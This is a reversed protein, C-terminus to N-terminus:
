PMSGTRPPGKVCDYTSGTREYRRSEWNFIVSARCSALHNIQMERASLQGSVRSNGGFYFSDTVELNNANLRGSFDLIGSILTNSKLTQAQALGVVQLEEASMYGGDEIFTNASASRVASFKGNPVSIVDRVALNGEVTMGGSTEIADANLSVQTRPESVPCGESLCGELDDYNLSDVTINNARISGGFVASNLNTGSIRSESGAVRLSQDVYIATGGAGALRAAGDVILNDVSLGGVNDIEHNNMDLNTEMRNAEPIGAIPTRYLYQRSAVSSYSIRDQIIIYNGIGRSENYPPCYPPTGTMLYSENNLISGSFSWSGYASIVDSACGNQTPFIGASPGIARAVDNAAMATFPRASEANDVSTVLFVQLTLQNGIFGLNRVYVSAIHGLPSKEQFNEPLGVTGDKLYFNGGENKIPIHIIKGINILYSNPDYVEDDLHIPINNLNEGFLDHMIASFNASLYSKATENVAILYNAEERHRIREAWEETLKVAGMTILAIIGISLLTEILSFGEQRGIHNPSSSM